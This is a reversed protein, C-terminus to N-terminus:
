SSGPPPLQTEQPQALQVSKIPPSNQTNVAASANATSFPVPTNQNTTISKNIKQNSNNIVVKAPQVIGEMKIAKDSNETPINAVSTQEPFRISKGLWSNIEELDSVSLTGAAAKLNILNNIYTYQDNAYQEQSQYLTTMASLVDVMTRTGVKLGAETAALANRSSIITQKDAKIQSSNSLVSLFSSRTQYVVNRHTQELLGSATEYQYRAQKTSAIVRGGQIPNYTLGLGISATSFDANTSIGVGNTAPSATSNTDQYGGQLALQPYGAAAQQKINEMAVLVNYNQARLSYNQKNAVDVWQNINDPQPRILPLNKGLGKLSAYNKGTLQRLAELQTNLNNQATIQQAVVQDYNAQADYENTIAILGVRFQERATVFQQRVAKKNAVTYRLQDYAQLVNFYALATRQMLSQQAALYTATAAKVQAGAGKIQEWAAFNFIPQTLSLGYGYQFQSGSGTVSGFPLLGSGVDTYSPGGSATVFLQPLYGAEAIPLNMKQSQWTSRAQAFIPDSTAAQSYVQILSDAYAASCVFGATLFGLLSLSRKM